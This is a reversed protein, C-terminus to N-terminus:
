WCVSERMRGGSVPFFFSPFPKTWLGRQERGEGTQVQLAFHLKSFKFGRRRQILIWIGGNHM